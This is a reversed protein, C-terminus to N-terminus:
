ASPSEFSRVRAFADALTTDHAAGIELIPIDLLRCLIEAASEKRAAILLGEFAYLQLWNWLARYSSEADDARWTNAAVVRDGAVLENRDGNARLNWVAAERLTPAGAGVWLLRPLPPKGAYARRVRWDLARREFSFLTRGVEAEYDPWRRRLVAMGAEGLVRRREEGFSASRAHRVLVNGAILHRLGAQAARQCFDNEEGYGQPFAAEDLKGVQDIATRRLYLCFGNGTPLQPYALGAQLWLARAAQEVSWGSPLANAQELEPVSFAGANDSVATATGVDDRSYAARRLGTLWNPGVETDANLLVVDAGGAADIGRNASATFGRNSANRLVEVGALGAYRALLPAIRPDPSADDVVILRARGTTHALVSDLCREVLEPADYVPVVVVVHAAAADVGFPVLQAGDVLPLLESAIPERAFGAQGFRLCLPEAALPDGDRRARPMAAIAAQGSPSFALAFQARGDADIPADAFYTGDLDLAVASLDNREFALTFTSGDWTAERLPPHLRPVAARRRPRLFDLLSM